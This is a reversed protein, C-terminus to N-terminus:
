AKDEKEPQNFIFDNNIVTNEVKASTDKNMDKALAKSEEVFRVAELFKLLLVGDGAIESEAEESAYFFLEEEPEATNNKVATLLDIPDDVDAFTTKAQIDKITMMTVLAGIGLLVGTKALKKFGKETSYKTFGKIVSEDKLEFADKLLQKKGNSIGTLDDIYKVRAEKSMPRLIKMLELFTLGESVYGYKGFTKIYKRLHRVTRLLNKGQRAEASIGLAQLERDDFKALARKFVEEPKLVASAMREDYMFASIDIDLFEDFNEGLRKELYWYTNNLEEMNTVLKEPTLDVMKKMYTNMIEDEYVAMLSPYASPKYRKYKYSFREVFDKATEQVVYKKAYSFDTLYNEYRNFMKDMRAKYAEIEDFYKSYVANMEATNTVAAIENDIKKYLSQIYARSNKVEKSLDVYEQGLKNLNAEEAIKPVDTTVPAQPAPIDATEYIGKVDEFSKLDQNYARKWGNENRFNQSFVHIPTSTILMLASIFMTIIKKM